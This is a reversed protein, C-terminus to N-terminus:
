PDRCEGPRRLDKEVATQDIRCMLWPSDRSTVEGGFKYKFEM